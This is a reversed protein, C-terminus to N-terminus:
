REGVELRGLQAGRVANFLLICEGHRVNTPKLTDGTEPETILGQELFYRRAIGPLCGTLAAPTVWRHSRWFAVNCISTEM